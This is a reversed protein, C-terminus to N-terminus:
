FSILNFVALSVIVLLLFYITARSKRGEIDAIYFSSVLSYVILYAPILSIIYGIMPTADAGNSLFGALNAILSISIKLIMPIIFGGFLITYKQMSMLNARERKIEFNKLLDEAIFHLQNLSNTNYAHTLMTCVKKLAPSDNRKWLDELVIDAKINMNLQRKAKEAEESLAGYNGAAMVDFIKEMKASKPLASVSFLADPLYQEIEESRKEKRYNSYVFWLMAVAGVALGAIRITQDEILFSGVFLAAPLLVSIDLVNTRPMLPSYPVSAKSVVLLLVSIAPFVLLLALAITERPLGNGVGFNGLLVYVLFFTPLIASTMIFLMGFIASRSASERMQHQQVALLEDGIRRMEVGSSGLEYASIIQSISRKIPYSSFMTAFKSFARDVTIGGGVDHVIKRLEVATESDEEAAMALCKLFPIGMNRLMGITRLVFPMEAEIITTRKRLEFSPLALLALLVILLLVFAAMAAQELAIGLLAAIAFSLIGVMFAIIIAAGVYREESADPYLKRLPKVMSSQLEVEPFANIHNVIAKLIM